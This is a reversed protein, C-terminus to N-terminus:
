PSKDDSLFEVGKCDLLDLSKICFVRPPTHLEIVLETNETGETTFLDRLEKGAVCAFSDRTLGKGAVCASFLPHPVTITLKLRAEALKPWSAAPPM